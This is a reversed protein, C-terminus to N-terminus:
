LGAYRRSLIAESEGVSRLYYAARLAKVEEPHLDGHKGLRRLRDQRAHYLALAAAVSINFSQVMGPIPIICNADALELMEESIGQQENGFVLATRQSFDIDDIDVAEEDLHTAVIQYGESRLYRACDVPRKWRWLDLWKQAGQTTRQSHKFDSEGTIVHFPTFGLGEASRMVASVNGSNVIGEVVTAVNYTRGGLVEEIRGRRRETIFEALTEEIEDPTYRRGDILFRDPDMLSRPGAEELLADITEEASPGSM